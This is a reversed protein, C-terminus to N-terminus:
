EHVLLERIESMFRDKGFREAYKKIEAPSSKVGDNELKDIAINLSGSTQESFFLGTKSEVVTELAGGARYAIVPRGSAM